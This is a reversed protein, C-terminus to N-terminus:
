ANSYCTEGKNGGDGRGDRLYQLDGFICIQSVIELTERNVKIELDEKAKDTKM